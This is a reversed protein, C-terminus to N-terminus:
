VRPELHVYAWGAFTHNAFILYEISIVGNRQVPTDLPIFSDMEISYAFTANSRATRTCGGLFNTAYLGTAPSIVTGSYFHVYSTGSAPAAEGITVGGTLGVGRIRAEDPLPITLTGSSGSLGIYVSRVEIRKRM